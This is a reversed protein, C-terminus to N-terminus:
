TRAPEAIRASGTCRGRPWRSRRRAPAIPIAKEPLGGCPIRFLDPGTRATNSEDRCPGTGPRHSIALAAVPEEAPRMGSQNGGQIRGAKPNGPVAGYVRVRPIEWLDGAAVIRVDGSHVQGSVVEGTERENAGSDSFSDKLWIRHGVPVPRLVVGKCRAGSERASIAMSVGLRKPVETIERRM